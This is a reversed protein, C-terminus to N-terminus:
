WPSVCAIWWSLLSTRSFGSASSSPTPDTSPVPWPTAAKSSRSSTTDHASRWCPPTSSTRGSGRCSSSPTTSLRRATAEGHGHDHRPREAPVSRGVVALLLDRRGGPRLYGGDALTPFLLEFSRNTLAPIHSADDIVIDFPGHQLSWAACCCRTTRAARSWPSVNVPSARSTTSTWRRGRPRAPFYDRWMRLSAGGFAPDDPREFGGVGLELLRVPRDRLPAFLDEYLSATATAPRTRVM